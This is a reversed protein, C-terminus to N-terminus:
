EELLGDREAEASDEAALLSSRLAVEALLSHAKVGIGPAIFGIAFSKESEISYCSNAVDKDEQWSVRAGHGSSGWSEALRLFRARSGRLEKLWTTESVTPRLICNTCGWLRTQLDCAPNFNLHLPIVPFPWSVSNENNLFPMFSIRISWGNAELIVKREWFAWFQGYKSRDTVIKM